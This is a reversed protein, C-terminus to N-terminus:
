DYIRDVPCFENTNNSGDPENDEVTVTWYAVEGRQSWLSRVAGTHHLVQFTYEATGRETTKVM